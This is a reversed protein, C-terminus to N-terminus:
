DGSIITKIKDTTLDEEFPIVKLVKGGKAHMVFPPDVGKDAAATLFSEAQEPNSDPDFHFMRMKNEQLWDLWFADDDLINVMWVPVEDAETEYVKVLYSNELDVPGLDEDGQDDDDIIVIDDDDIVDGGGSSAGLWYCFGGLALGLFIITKWPTGSPEVNTVTKQKQAFPSQM